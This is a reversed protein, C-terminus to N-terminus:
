KKFGIKQISPDDIDFEGENVWIIKQDAGSYYTIEYTTNQFRISCCTIMGKINALKIIVFSGCQFIEKM